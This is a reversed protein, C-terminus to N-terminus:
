ECPLKKSYVITQFILWQSSKEDCVRYGIQILKKSSYSDVLQPIAFILILSIIVSVGFFKDLKAYSKSPHKKAIFGFLMGLSLAILGTGCGFFYFMGKEFTIFEGQLRVANYYDVAFFCFVGTVFIGLVFFFGVVLFFHTTSVSQNDGEITNM